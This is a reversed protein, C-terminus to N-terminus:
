VDTHNQKETIMKLDEKIKKSRRSVISQYKERDEEPINDIQERLSLHYRSTLTKIVTNLETNAGAKTGTKICRKHHNIIKKTGKYIGKMNNSKWNMFTM